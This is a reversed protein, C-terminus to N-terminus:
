SLSETPTIPTSHIGNETPEDRSPSGDTTGERSGGSRRRRWLRNSVVDLPDPQVHQEILLWQQEQALRILEDQIARIRHFQALKDREGKGTTKGRRILLSKHDDEKPVTLLIGTAVGGSAEWRDMLTSDPIIHVGELVLSTGRHMMEDVLEDIAHQVVQCTEKWSTVPDDTGEETASDYSSRYLSPPAPSSSSPSSSSRLVTRLTDTSICKLIGQDLAVSMGFTSKGTGSCGGILILKPTTTQEEVFDDGIVVDTNPRRTTRRRRTVLSVRPSLGSFAAASDVM